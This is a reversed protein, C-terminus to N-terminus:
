QEEETIHMCPGDGGCHMFSIVKGQRIKTNDFCTYGGDNPDEEPAKRPRSNGPDFAGFKAVKWGFSLFHQHAYECAAEFDEFSKVRPEASADHTM